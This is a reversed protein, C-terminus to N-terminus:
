ILEAASGKDGFLLLGPNRRSMILAGSSDSLLMTNFCFLANELWVTSQATISFSLLRRKSQSSLQARCAPIVKALCNPQPGCYYRHTSPCFSGKVQCGITMGRYRHHRSRQCSWRSVEVPILSSNTPLRGDREMSEVPVVKASLYTPRLM